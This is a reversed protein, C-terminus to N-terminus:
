RRRALSSEASATARATQAADARRIRGAAIHQRAWGYPPDGVRYEDEHLHDDLDALKVERALRGELGDAHVIRLVHLEYSEGPARSLLDLAALEGATLGNALLEDGDTTTHVLVDHLFALARAEEAVAAAVREVHEIRPM